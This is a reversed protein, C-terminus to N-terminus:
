VETASAPTISVITSSARWHEWTDSNGPDDFWILFSGGLTPWVEIRSLELLEGDHDFPRHASVRRYRQRDLDFLHRTGNRTTVVWQGTHASTLTVVDTADKTMAPMTGNLDM